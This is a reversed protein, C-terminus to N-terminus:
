LSTPRLYTQLYALVEEVDKLRGQAATPGEGVKFTLGRGRLALFAAEDTTDDGIYVPTHDPHRGLLRLVAQGKDVGKPKLELVKKGSPRSAWPKWSGRWRRLGPRSAPGPRRM